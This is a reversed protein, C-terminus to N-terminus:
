CCCQWCACASAQSRRGQLQSRVQQVWAKLDFTPDPYYIVLQQFTHCKLLLLRLRKVLHM